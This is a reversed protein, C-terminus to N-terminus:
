NSSRAQENLERQRAREAIAAHRAEASYPVPQATARWHYAAGRGANAIFGRAKLHHCVGTVTTRGIGTAAAVQSSSTPRNAANLRKITGLIRLEQADLHEFGDRIYTM